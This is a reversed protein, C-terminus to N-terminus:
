QLMDQYITVFLVVMEKKGWLSWAYKETRAKWEEKSLKFTDKTDEVLIFDDTSGQVFAFSFNSSYNLQLLNFQTYFVSHSILKM